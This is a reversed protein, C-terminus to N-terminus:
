GDKRWDGRVLSTIYKKSVNYKKALELSNSKGHSVRVYQEKIEKVQEASLKVMGHDEGHVIVLRGKNKADHYNDKATGIFLHEPNYCKRNDCTHLVLKGDPIPGVFTIYSARHTLLLKGNDGQINGYGKSNLCGQFEWCGTDSITKRKLLKDELTPKM